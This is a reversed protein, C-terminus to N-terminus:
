GIPPATGALSVVRKGLRAASAKGLMRQDATILMADRDDALALYLCDYVPHDLSRALMFAAPVLERDSSLAVYRPLMALARRARAPKIRGLRAAKWLFNAVEVLLLEPAILDAEAGLLAEAEQTGAEPVFWKAAVSADIVLTM